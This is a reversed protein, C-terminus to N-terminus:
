PYHRYSRPPEETTSEPFHLIVVRASAKDGFVSVDGGSHKQEGFRSECQPVKQHFWNALFIGADSNGTRNSRCYDDHRQLFM